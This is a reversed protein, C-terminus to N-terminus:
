GTLAKECAQKVRFLYDDLLSKSWTQYARKIARFADDIVFILESQLNTIYDNLASGESSATMILFLILSLARANRSKLFYKM